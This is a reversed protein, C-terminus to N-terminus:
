NPVKNSGSGYWNCNFDLTHKMHKNQTGERPYNPDLITSYNRQGRQQVYQHSNLLNVAAQVAAKSNNIDTGTESAFTQSILDTDVGMVIFRTIFAEAPSLQTYTAKKTPLEYVRQDLIHPIPLEVPPKGTSNITHADVFMVKDVLQYRAM